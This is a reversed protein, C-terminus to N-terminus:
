RRRSEHDHDVVAETPRVPSRGSSRRLSSDATEHNRFHWRNRLSMRARPHSPSTRNSCSPDGRAAVTPSERHHPVPTFRSNPAFFDSRFENGRGVEFNRRRENATRAPDTPANCSSSNAVAKLRMRDRTRCAHAPLQHAPIMQRSASNACRGSSINLRSRFSPRKALWSPANCRCISRPSECKEQLRDRQNLLKGQLDSPVCNLKEWDPFEISADPSSLRCLLIAIFEDRNRIAEILTSQDAIDFDIAPPPGPLPPLASRQGVSRSENPDSEVTASEAIAASKPASVSPSATTPDYSEEALMAPKIAEWGTKAHKTVPIDALPSTRASGKPLQGAPEIASITSSAALASIGALHGAGSAVLDLLETIQSEIRALSQRAQTAEWDGIVRTLQELLTQQNEVLEPPLGAVASGGRGSGTRQMRDLQDAAQELRQTLMQVAQDREKLTHIRKEYAVSLPEGTLRTPAPPAAFDTGSKTTLDKFARISSALNPKAIGAASPGAANSMPRSAATSKPNESAAGSDRVAPRAASDTPISM